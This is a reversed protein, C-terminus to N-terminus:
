PLTWRLCTRCSTHLQKGNSRAALWAMGAVLRGSAAPSLGGVTRSYTVLFTYPVWLMGAYITMFLGLPMAARHRLLERVTLVTHEVETKEKEPACAEGGKEVLGVDDLEGRGDKASLRISGSSAREHVVAPPSIPLFLLAAAVNTVGTLVAYVQLTARWGITQILHASISSFVLTGVGSGAVAIGTATPRKTTFYKGVAVISTSWMLGFGVGTICGYTLYLYLLQSVQSGLVLGACMLVAGTLAVQRMTFRQLLMGSPLSCALMLCSGISGAWTSASTSGVNGSAKQFEEDDLLAKFLIGFTFQLGLCNFHVIFSGLVVVWGWGGNPPKDFGDGRILKGVYEM